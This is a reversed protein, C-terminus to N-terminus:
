VEYRLPDPSLTGNEQREQSLWEKSMKCFLRNKMFKDKINRQEDEEPRLSLM